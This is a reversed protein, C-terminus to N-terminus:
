PPSTRYAFYIDLRGGRRGDVAHRRDPALGCQAALDDHSAQLYTAMLAAVRDIERHGDTTTSSTLAASM